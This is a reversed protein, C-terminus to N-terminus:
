PERKFMLGEANFSASSSFDNRTTQTMSISRLVKHQISEQGANSCKSFIFLEPVVQGNSVSPNINLLSSYRRM